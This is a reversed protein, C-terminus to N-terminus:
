KTQLLKLPYQKGRKTSPLTDRTKKYTDKKNLINNELKKENLDKNELKKNQEEKWFNRSLKKSM